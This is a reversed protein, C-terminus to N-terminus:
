GSRIGWREEGVVAARGFALRRPRRFGRRRIWGMEWCIRYGGWAGGIMSGKRSSVLWWKIPAVAVLIDLGEDVRM